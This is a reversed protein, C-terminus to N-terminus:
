RFSELFQFHSSCSYPGTWVGSWEHASGFEIFQLEVKSRSQLSPQNLRREQTSRLESLKHYVIKSSFIQTRFELVRDLHFLQSKYRATWAINLSAFEIALEKDTNLCTKDRYILGTLFPSRMLQALIVFFCCFIFKRKFFSAWVTGVRALRLLFPAGFRSLIKTTNNRAVVELKMFSQDRWEIKLWDRTGNYSFYM